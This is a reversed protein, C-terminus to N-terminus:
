EESEGLLEKTYGAESEMNSLEAALVRSIRAFAKVAAPSNMEGVREFHFQIQDHVADDEISIIIKVM